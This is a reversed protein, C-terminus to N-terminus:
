HMYVYRDHESTADEMDDNKSTVTNDYKNGGRSFDEYEEDDYNKVKKKEILILVVIMIKKMTM